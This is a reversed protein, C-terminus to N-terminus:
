YSGKECVAFAKIMVNLEDLYNHRRSSVMELCLCSLQSREGGIKIQLNNQVLHLDLLLKARLESRYSRSHTFVFYLNELKNLKERGRLLLCM